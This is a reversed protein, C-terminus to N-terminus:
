QDPSGDGIASSKFGFVFDGYNLVASGRQGSALFESLREEKALPLSVRMSVDIGTRRVVAADVGYRAANLAVVSRLLPSWEDRNQYRLAVSWLPSPDIKVGPALAGRSMLIPELFTYERGDHEYEQSRGTVKFFSLLGRAPDLQVVGLTQDARWGALSEYVVYESLRGTALLWLRAVDIVEQVRARTPV